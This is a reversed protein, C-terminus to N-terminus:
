SGAGGASVTGAATVVVLVAAAVEDISHKVAASVADGEAVSKARANLQRRDRGPLLKGLQGISLLLAILTATREDPLHGALLVAAVRERVEQEPRPDVEPFTTSTFVGLLRKDERALVGGVVLRQRLLDALNKILKNHGLGGLLDKVRKGQFDTLRALAADLLQDGVPAPNIVSVRGREARPGSPQGVRIRGCLALEAVLAGTLAPELRDGGVTKQGSVADTCLLLMEEAILM